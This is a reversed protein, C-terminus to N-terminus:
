AFSWFFDIRKCNVNGGFWEFGDDQGYSIMVHDIKTKRGVGGMTLSNLETNSGCVYGAYEIRVYSIVGSSDDLNTGGYDYDADTGCEIRGQISNGNADKSNIPALGCIAIGAWDARSRSGVPQSSTFVIPEEATGQAILKAGAAVVLRSLTTKNGKVLTGKEITLTAGNKVIIDGFLTYTNNNTWTTSATISTTVNVNAANALTTAALLVATFFHRLFNTKM